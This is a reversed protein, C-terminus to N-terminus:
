EKVPRVRARATRTTESCMVRKWQRYIARNNLEDTIQGSVAGDADTEERGYGRNILVWPDVDARLGQSIREFVELDDTAGGGAPGYFSQHGRLRMSNLIPPADSLTYPYLFVETKSVSIPRIIRIHSSIFVLNPFILV